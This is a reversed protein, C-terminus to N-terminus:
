DSREVEVTLNVPGLTNAGDAGPAITVLDLAHEESALYDVQWAVREEPTCDSCAYVSSAADRAIREAPASQATVSDVRVEWWWILPNSVVLLEDGRTEFRVRRREDIGRSWERPKYHRASALPEPEAPYISRAVPVREFSGVRGSGPFPLQAVLGPGFALRHVASDAPRGRVFLGDSRGCRLDTATGGAADAQVALAGHVVVPGPSECLLEGMDDIHLYPLWPVPAVAQYPGPEKLNDLRSVPHYHQGGALGTRLLGVNHTLLAAVAISALAPVLWPWDFRRVLALAAAAWFLALFPLAGLMMYWWTDVRLLAVQAGFLVYGAAGLLLWFRLREDRWAVVAGAAGGTALLGLLGLGVPVLAPFSNAALRWASPVGVAITNYLLAPADILRAIVVDSGLYAIVAQLDRGQAGAVQHFLLPLFPLLGGAAIAAAGRWWEARRHWLLAIFLWGLTVVTPHAHIALSFSLGALFATLPSRRTWDLHCFILFALVTFEVLAFHSIALQTVYSVGPLALVAAWLLGLRWDVLRAGLLFALPYKIGALATVFLAASTYSSHFLLPLALTYFWAPGIHVFFGIMPGALPFAQGSAVQWAWYMDRATDLNIGGFPAGLLPLLWFAAILAWAWGPASALPGALREHRSM